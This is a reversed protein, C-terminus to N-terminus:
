NRVKKRGRTFDQQEHCNPCLIQLNGIRNDKNNGNIHHLQLTLPKNNWIPGLSCIECKNEKIKNEFLRKKATQFHTKSNLKFVEKDPTKRDRGAKFHSTDINFKNVLRTIVTRNSGLKKALDVLSTSIKIKNELEKKTIHVSRCWMCESARCDKLRGCPCYSDAVWKGNKFNPNKNGQNNISTRKSRCQQLGCNITLPNRVQSKYRKFQRGCITCEWWDM